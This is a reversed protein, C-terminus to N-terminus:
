ILCCSHGFNGPAPIKSFNEALPTYWFYGRGGIGTAQNYRNDKTGNEAVTEVLSSSVRSLRGGRETMSLSPSGRFAVSEKERETFENEM